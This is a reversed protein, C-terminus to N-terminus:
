LNDFRILRLPRKMEEAITLLEENIGVEWAVRAKRICDYAEDLSRRSTVLRKEIPNHVMNLSCNREYLRVITNVIVEKLGTDDLIQKVNDRSTKHNINKESKYRELAIQKMRILFIDNRLAEFVQKAHGESSDNVALAVNVRSSPDLSYLEAPTRLAM